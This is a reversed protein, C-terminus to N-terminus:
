EPGADPLYVDIEEDQDAGLKRALELARQRAQVRRQIAQTERELLEEIDPGAM